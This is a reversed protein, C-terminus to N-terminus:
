GRKFFFGPVLFIRGDGVEQFYVPHLIQVTWAKSILSESYSDAALGLNEFYSL